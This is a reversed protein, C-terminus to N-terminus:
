PPLSRGGRCFDILLGSLSTELLPQQLGRCISRVEPTDACFPPAGTVFEYLIAGLSWWDAEPGHGVQRVM